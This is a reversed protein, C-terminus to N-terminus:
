GGLIVNAKQNYLFIAKVTDVLQLDKETTNDKNLIINVYTLVSCTTNLSGEGNLKVSITHNTDLDPAALKNISVYYANGSYLHPTLINEGDKFEYESINHSGDLLFYVKYNVENNLTLSQGYPAIGETEGTNSVAYAAVDSTSVASVDQDAPDLDENALDTLNYDFYIQTYAAYNLLSKYFAIDDADLSLGILAYIYNKVSPYMENSIPKDDGDYVCIEFQDAIQKPNVDPISITIRRNADVIESLYTKENNVLVYATNLDVSEAVTAAINFTVTGNPKLIGQATKNTIKQYIPAVDLDYDLRDMLIDFTYNNKNPTITIKGFTNDVVEGDGYYVDVDQGNATLRVGILTSDFELHLNVKNDDTEKALSTIAVQYINNNPVYTGITRDFEYDVIGSGSNDFTITRLNHVYTITIDDNINYFRTSTLSAKTDNKLVIKVIDTAPTGTTSITNSDTIYRTIKTGTYPITLEPNNGVKIKMATVDSLDTYISLPVGTTSHYDGIVSAVNYNIEGNTEDNWVSSSIPNNSNNYGADLVTLTHGAVFGAYLITDETVRDKNFLWESTCGSDKYWGAFVHGGKSPDISPKSILSNFPVDEYLDFQFSDVLFTVDCPDGTPITDTEYRYVHDTKEVLGMKYFSAKLNETQTTAYCDPEFLYAILYADSNNLSIEYAGNEFTVESNETLEAVCNMKGSSGDTISYEKLVRTTGNPISTYTIGHIDLIDLIADINTLDAPIVYSLPLARTRNATNFMSWNRTAGPNVYEGKFDVSPLAETGMVQKNMTLIFQNNEDYASVKANNRGEYAIEAISKAHSGDYAIVEDIINKEAITMENVCYEYYAKGAWIRTVEILFSLSGRITAYSREALPTYQPDPYHTARFGQTNAKAILNNCFTTPIQDNMTENGLAMAATNLFPSNPVMMACYSLSHIDAVTSSDSSATTHDNDEHCSVYVSPMFLRYVYALNQSSEHEVLLVDKNSNCGDPYYRSFRQMNDASLNPIIVIAGYHDLVEDGYEGCLDYCLQLNGEIGSAENGHQGGNLMIIERVGKSNVEVALDELSINSDVNDKTFVLVPSQNGLPSDAFPYYVHLYPSSLGDVFDCVEENSLFRRIYSGRTFTPTVLTEKEVALNDVNFFNNIIQDTTYASTDEEYNNEVYKTLPFDYTITGEDGEVYFYKLIYDVGRGNNKDNYYVKFFHLGETLDAEIYNKGEETGSTYDTIQEKSSSSNHGKYLVILPQNSPEYPNYYYIRVKVTSVIGGGKITYTISNTNVTRELVETDKPIYNISGTSSTNNVTLYTTDTIPDTINLDVTGSFSDTTLCADSALNITGGGVLSSATLSNNFTIDGGASLDIAPVIGTFTTYTGGNLEMTYTGQFPNDTNRAKNAIEAITSNNFTADVTATSIGTVGVLSFYNISVNNIDVTVDGSFNRSSANNGLCVAQWNGSHVNIVQNSATCVTNMNGAFISPYEGTGSKGITSVHEGITLSNGQCYIYAYAGSATVANVLTINDIEVEGGLRLVRPFNLKVNQNEGIITIKDVEPLITGTNLPGIYADSKIIITGGESPLANAALQLTEYAGETEGTPDVYLTTGDAKVINTCTLSMFLCLMLTLLKKM